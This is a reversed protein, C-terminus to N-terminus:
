ARRRRLALGAVGLLLLLGSTPEPVAATQKWDGASVGAVNLKAYEADNDKDYGRISSGDLLYYAGEYKELDAISTVTTDEVFLLQFPQVGETKTKNPQTIRDDSIQNSYDWTTKYYSEPDAGVSSILQASEFSLTYGGTGATETVSGLFLFLKGAGSYEGGTSNEWYSAPDNVGWVYSVAQASVAMAVAAFAVM